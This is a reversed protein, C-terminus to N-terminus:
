KFINYSIGNDYVDVNERLKIAKVVSVTVPLILIDDLTRLAVLWLVFSPLAQWHM